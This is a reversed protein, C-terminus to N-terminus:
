ETPTTNRSVSGVDIVILRRFPYILKIGTVNILESSINDLNILAYKDSQNGKYRYNSWNFCLTLRIILLSIKLYCFCQLKTFFTQMKDLFINTKVKLDELLKSKFEFRSPEINPSFYCNRRHFM